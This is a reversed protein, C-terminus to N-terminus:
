CCCGFVIATVMGVSRNRVVVAVAVAFLVFLEVFLENVFLTYSSYDNGQM